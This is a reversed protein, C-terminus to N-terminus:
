GIWSEAKAKRLTRVKTTLLGVPTLMEFCQEGGRGKKNEHCGTHAGHSLLLRLGLFRSGATHHLCM